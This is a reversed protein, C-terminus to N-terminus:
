HSVLTGTRYLSSLQPFSFPGFDICNSFSLPYLNAGKEKGCHMMNLNVKSLIDSKCLNQKKDLCTKIIIYGIGNALKHFLTYVLM